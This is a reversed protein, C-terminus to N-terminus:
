RSDFLFENNILWVCNRRGEFQLDLHCKWAYRHHEAVYLNGRIVGKEGAFSLSSLQLRWSFYQHNQCFQQSSRILFSILFVTQIVELILTFREMDFSEYQTCTQQTWRVAIDFCEMSFGLHWITRAQFTYLSTLWDLILDNLGNEIDMSFNWVSHHPPFIAIRVWLKSLYHNPCVYIEFDKHWFM